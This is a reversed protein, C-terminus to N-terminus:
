KLKAVAAKAIAVLVDKANGYGQIKMELDGRIVYIYAPGDPTANPLFYAKDWLGYIKEIEKKKEKSLLFHRDGTASEFKLIYYESKGNPLKIDYKAEALGTEQGYVVKGGVISAVKEAPVIDIPRIISLDLKKHASSSPPKSNSSTGQQDTKGCASISIIFTVSVLLAILMKKM